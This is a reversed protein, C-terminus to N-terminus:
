RPVGQTLRHSTGVVVHRITSRGFGFRQMFQQIVGVPLKGDVTAARIELVQEPTMRLLGTRRKKAMDASNEPRTGLFLHKHNCCRRVDCRHLVCLGDPIKGYALQWSFRHALETSKGTSLTGYGYHNAGATWLWCDDHGAVAVRAWYQTDLSFFAILAPM